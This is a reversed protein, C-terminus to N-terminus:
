AVPPFARGALGAGTGAACAPASGLAALHRRSAYSLSEEVAYCRAVATAIGQRTTWQVLEEALRTKGIGAEGSILLLHPEGGAARQWSEMIQQWALQRGVLPTIAV